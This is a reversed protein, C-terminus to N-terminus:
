VKGTSGGGGETTNRRISGRIDFYEAERLTENIWTELVNIDFSKSAKNSLKEHGKKPNLNKYMESLERYSAGFDNGEGFFLSGLM